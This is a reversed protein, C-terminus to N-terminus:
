PTKKPLVRAADLQSRLIGAWDAAARRAAAENDIRTTLELWAKERDVKRDTVRVLITGDMSDRLEASLTMEGASRTYSHTTEPRQFDPANIYLDRIEAKIRLVDHAPAEVLKYGGARELERALEERLVRELGEQIRQKEEPTVRRPGQQREWSKSFGVKIPDLMVKDYRSLDADPRAYVSQLGTVKVKVLGDAEEQAPTPNQAFSRPAAIAMLAASFLVIAFKM